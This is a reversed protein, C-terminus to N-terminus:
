GRPTGVVTIKGLRRSMIQPTVSRRILRLCEDPAGLWQEYTTREEEIMIALADLRAWVRRMAPRRTLFHVTRLFPTLWPEIIIIKGGPAVVRQMERLALDVDALTLLHHLGGQVAVIERSATALPISRADGVVCRGPGRHQVVQGLSYDVGLVDAFGLQHWARLGSGRGSCLELIRARKDWRDAGIRRLRRTFKAVEGEPTEFRQYAAEWRTLTVTTM